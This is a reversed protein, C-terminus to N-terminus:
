VEPSYDTLIMVQQDITGVLDGYKASTERKIQTWEEDDMFAEWQRRM